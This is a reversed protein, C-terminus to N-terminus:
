KRKSENEQRGSETNQSVFGCWFDSVWMPYVMLFLWCNRRSERAQSAEGWSYWDCCIWSVKLVDSDQYCCFPGLLQHPPDLCPPRCCERGSLHQKQVPHKAYCHDPHSQEEGGVHNKKRRRRRRRRRRSIEGDEGSDAESLIRFAARPDIWVIAIEMMM